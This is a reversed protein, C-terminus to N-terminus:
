PIGNWATLGGDVPIIAGNVYASEDSALFLTVAAVEPGMGIRGLPTNKSIAALSEETMRRMIVPTGIAGPCICNVRIGRPGFDLAMSRTLNIVGAKAANYAAARHDGRMGSVSGVNIVSGRGRAVMGSLVAKSVLYTGKLNVDVVVDWDEESVEVADGPITTGANNLLVDIQGFHDLAAAVAANVQAADRVDATVAFAKGGEGRVIEAVQEVREQRNDLLAVSGGERAFAMATDRGMGAAGGTILAVRGDFRAV